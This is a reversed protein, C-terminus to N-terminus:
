RIEFKRGSPKTLKSKAVINIPYMALMKDSCKDLIEGAGGGKGAM